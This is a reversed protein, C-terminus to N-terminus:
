RQRRRHVSRYLAAGRREAKRAFATRVLNTVDAELPELERTADLIQQTREFYERVDTVLEITGGSRLTRCMLGVLATTFVRRRHHRRKWWPDPFQIHYATVCDDPLLSLVCLADGALVRTNQLDGAALQRELAAARARSREIGLINYMHHTRAYTILFEGRGPGIEIVAPQDNDFITRWFAAGHSPPFVTPLSAREAEM